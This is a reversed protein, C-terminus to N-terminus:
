EGERKRRFLEAPRGLNGAPAKHSDTGVVLDDMRRRFRYRDLTEGAVAEHVQQLEPLTFLRGLLRDPDPETEYRSRVHHKALRVIEPHDWMLEGPRDVPMLRTPYEGEGLSELQERRVVAVHAVSIVRDRDDRNPDDLVGLRQPHIGVVGLKDRLCREVAASLTERDLLFTGPLVWKGTDTRQSEVVLLQQREVDIILLATDVAVIHRPAQPIKKDSGPTITAETNEPIGKDGM